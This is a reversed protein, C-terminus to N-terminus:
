LIWFKRAELQKRKKIIKNLFNKLILMFLVLFIHPM